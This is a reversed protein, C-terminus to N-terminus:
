FIMKSIILWTKMQNIRLSLYKKKEIKMFVIEGNVKKKNWQIDLMNFVDDETKIIEENIIKDDKM